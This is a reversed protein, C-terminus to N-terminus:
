FLPEASYRCVGAQIRQRGEYSFIRYFTDFDHQYDFFGRGSCSLVDMGRCSGHKGAAKGALNLDKVGIFSLNEVLVNELRSVMAGTQEPNLGSQLSKIQEFLPPLLVLYFIVLLMVIGSFITVTAKTRSMGRSELLNALPDLIYSLLAAIIVLKVIDPILFLFSIFAAAAIASLAIKVLLHAKTM